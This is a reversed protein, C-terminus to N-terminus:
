IVDELEVSSSRVPPGDPTVSILGLESVSLPLSLLEVLHFPEDSKNFPTWVPM